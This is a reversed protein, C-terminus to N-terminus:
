AVADLDQDNDTRIINLLILYSGIETDGVVLIYQSQTLLEHLAVEHYAGYDDGMVVTLMGSILETMTELAHTDFGINVIGDITIRMVHFENGGIFAEPLVVIHLGGTLQNDYSSWSWTATLHCGTERLQVVFVFAADTSTIGFELGEGHPVQGQLMRHVDGILCCGGIEVIHVHDVREM